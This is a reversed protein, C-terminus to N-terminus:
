RKIDRYVDRRHQIYDIFVQHTKQSVAHIIRYDGVRYRYYDRLLGKLRKVSPGSSPTHRLNEIAHHIREQTGPDLKKFSRVAHPSLHIEFTM